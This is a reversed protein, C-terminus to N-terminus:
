RQRVSIRSAKEMGAPDIVSVVFEHQMGRCSRLDQYMNEVSVPKIIPRM